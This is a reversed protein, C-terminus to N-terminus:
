RVRHAPEITTTTGVLSVQLLIAIWWARRPLWEMIWALLLGGSVLPMLVMLAIPLHVIKPHFLLADM